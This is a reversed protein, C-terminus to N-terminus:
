LNKCRQTSDKWHRALSERQEKAAAGVSSLQAMVVIDLGSLAQQHQRFSERIRRKIRNRVVAKLSVKRSVIIGLRAHDLLNPNAYVIFCDDLTKRGQRMAKRYAASELLRASKALGLPCM